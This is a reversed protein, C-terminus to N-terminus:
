ARPRDEAAEESWRAYWAKFLRLQTEAYHRQGASLADTANFHLAYEPNGELVMLHKYYLVLDPGEDFSS